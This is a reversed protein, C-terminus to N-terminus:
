TPKLISGDLGATKMLDVGILNNVYDFMEKLGKFGVATATPVSGDTNAVLPKKYLWNNDWEAANSEQLQSLMWRIDRLMGALGVPSNTEGTTDAGATEVASPDLTESNSVSKGYNVLGYDQVVPFNYMSLIDSSGKPSNYDWAYFPRPVPNGAADYDGNEFNGVEGAGTGWSSNAALNASTSGIVVAIPFWGDGAAPPSTGWSFELVEIHKPPLNQVVEVGGATNWFKRSEAPSNGGPDTVKRKCWIAHNDAVNSGSYSVSVSSQTSQEVGIPNMRLVKGFVHGDVLDFTYFLGAGISITENVTDVTFKPPDLCGSVRGLLGGLCRGIYEYTLEQLNLADPIDLRENDQLNVRDM